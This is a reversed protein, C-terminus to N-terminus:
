LTRIDTRIDENQSWKSLYGCPYGYPHGHQIMRAVSLELMSIVDHSRTHNNVTM